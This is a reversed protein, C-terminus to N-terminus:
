ELLVKAKKLTTYWSHNPTTYFQAPDLGFHFLLAKRFELMVYSSLLVDLPLYLDHYERLAKMNFQNCVSLCRKYETESINSDTLSSYFKDHSPLATDNFREWSDMYEYPYVGKKFEYILTMTIKFINVDKPIQSTM